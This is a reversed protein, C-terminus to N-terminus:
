GLPKCLIQKIRLDFIGAAYAPKLVVATDAGRGSGGVAVVDEDPTIHGHEAAMIAIEVCVKMGQGFMRLTDSVLNLPIYKAGYKNEFGRETASLAHIGRVITIGAAAVRERNRNFAEVKDVFKSGAGYTVGVVEVAAEAMERMKLATEGTSSAVVIKGIANERCCAEALELTRGTNAAGRESFYVITKEQDSGM